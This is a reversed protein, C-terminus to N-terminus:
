GGGGWELGFHGHHSFVFDVTPFIKDPLKQHAVKPDWVGGKGGKLAGRVTPCRLVSGIYHPVVACLSCEETRCCVHFARLCVLM